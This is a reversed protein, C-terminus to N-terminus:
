LATAGLRRGYDVIERGVGIRAAEYRELAAQVQREGALCAVLAMVDAAAKSVGMATHPRAVFAADGVLAVSRGIMRPAEYDFIGQISPTPEAEVALAFQPPLIEHADRRLADRREMSLGGRRLSYQSSHGREDTLTRQLEDQETPKYWVWNYRRRGVDIEGGSGPVLYGLIHVGSTVYFAFRDLLISAGNPLQTEPILGRWAVYGAFQNGHDTQNVTARVVSGVGDAGIVLDATEKTGDGFIIEASQEGDEVRVVEQDLMFAESDFHSLVTNYLYDWSIQKQPARTTQLVRGDRGFYIRERAVVGVEEADEAGIMRLLNFLDEQPVLGAGRGGLGHASREYIKVEHGSRQLLIGAFVGALSGGVVKIRLKRM